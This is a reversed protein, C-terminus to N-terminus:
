PETVMAKIKFNKYDLPTRPAGTDLLTSSSSATESVAQTEELEWNSFFSGPQLKFLFDSVTQMQLSAGEISLKKENTVDVMISKMWVKPPMQQIIFDVARVLFNRDRGVSEALNLKRQVEAMVNDFEDAEAKISQLEKLKRNYKAIEQDKQQSVAVIEAQKKVVLDEVTIKTFYIAAIGVVFLVIRVRDSADLSVGGGALSSLSFRSSSEEIIVADAKAGGGGSGRLKKAINIGAM